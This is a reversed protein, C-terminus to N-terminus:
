KIPVMFRFGLSADGFGTEGHPFGRGDGPMVAGCVGLRLLGLM